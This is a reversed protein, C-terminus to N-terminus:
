PRKWSGQLKTVYGEFRQDGQGSEVFLWDLHIEGEIGAYRGTGGIVRGKAERVTGASGLISGELALVIEDGKADTWVCRAVGGTKKDSVGNCTGDFERSLGGPSELTVKGQVRALTVTADGVKAPEIKGALRWAGTFSGEGPLKDAAAQAHAGAAGALAALLLALSSLRSRIM